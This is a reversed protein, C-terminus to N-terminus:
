PQPPEGLNWTFTRQVARGKPVALNRIERTEGKFTARVGYTAPPLQIYFWPGTSTISLIEAGNAATVVVGVDALFAGRKEAFVLKLNYGKARQEMAEREESSIGGVLYPFGQATKGESLTISPPFEAAAAGATPLGCGMPESLLAVGLLAIWRFDRRRGANM